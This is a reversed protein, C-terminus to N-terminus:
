YLFLDIRGYENAIVNIYYLLFCVFATQISYVYAAIIKYQGVIIMCTVNICM